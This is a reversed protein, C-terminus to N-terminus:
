RWWPRQKAAAAGGQDWGARVDQWDRHVYADAPSFGGAGIDLGPAFPVRYDGWHCRKVTGSRRSTWTGVFENNRFSDSYNDVDYYRLQDHRDVYWRTRAVGQFTGAGPQGPTERLEYDLLAVGARRAPSPENDLGRPVVKWERVQRLLLEGTFACVVGQVMSKGTVLYRRPAAPDRRVTLLKLRLRQYDPGIFGYVLTNDTKTWLPGFDYRQYTAVRESPALATDALTEARLRAADDSAPAAATLLLLSATLLRLVPM